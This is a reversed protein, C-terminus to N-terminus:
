VTHELGLNKTKKNNTPKLPKKTQKKTTKKLSEQKQM